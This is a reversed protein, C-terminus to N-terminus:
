GCVHLTYCDSRGGPTAPSCAGMGDPSYGFEDRELPIREYPMSPHDSGFMVKDRSRGRVDRVLSPSVLSSTEAPEGANAVKVRTRELHSQIKDTSGGIRLMMRCVDDAIGAVGADLSIEDAGAGFLHQNRRSVVVGVAFDWCMDDAEIEIAQRMATELSSRERDLWAIPDPM